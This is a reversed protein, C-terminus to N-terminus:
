SLRGAGEYRRPRSSCARPHQRSTNSSRQAFGAKADMRRKTGLAATSWKSKRTNHRTAPFPQASFILRFGERAGPIASVLDDLIAPVGSVFPERVLGRAPDDFIWTGSSFYPAIAFISNSNTTVPTEMTSSSM